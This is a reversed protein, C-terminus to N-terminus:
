YKQHSYVLDAYMSLCWLCYLVWSIDRSLEQGLMFFQLLGESNWIFAIMLIYDNFNKLDTLKRHLFEQGMLKYFLAQRVVHDFAEVLYAYFKEWKFSLIIKTTSVIKFLNDM